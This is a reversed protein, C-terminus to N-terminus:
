LAFVGGIRRKKGQTDDKRQYVKKWIEYKRPGLTRNVLDLIQNEPVDQPNTTQTSLGRIRYSIKNGVGTSQSRALRLCVCAKVHKRAKIARQAYM